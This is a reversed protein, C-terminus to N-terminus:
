IVGFKLRLTSYVLLSEQRSRTLSILHCDAKVTQLILFDKIKSGFTKVMACM